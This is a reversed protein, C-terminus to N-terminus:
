VDMGKSAHPCYTLYAILLTRTDPMSLCAVPPAGRGKVSALPQSLLFMGSMRGFRHVYGFRVEEWPLYLGAGACVGHESFAPCTVAASGAKRLLTLAAAFLGMAGLTLWLATMWRQTQAARLIMMAGTTVAIAAAPLLMLAYLAAHQWQRRLRGSRKQAPTFSLNIEFPCFEGFAQLLRRSMPVVFGWPGCAPAHHLMNLFDTSGRYMGYFYQRRSNCCVLGLAAVDEWRTRRVRLLFGVGVGQVDVFFRCSMLSLCLALLAATVILLVRAMGDLSASVCVDRLLACVITLACVSYFMRPYRLVRVM